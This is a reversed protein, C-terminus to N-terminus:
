ERMTSPHLCERSGRPARNSATPLHSLPINGQWIDRAAAERQARDRHLQGAQGGAVGLPVPQKCSRWCKEAFHRSNACGVREHLRSVVETCSLITARVVMGRCASAHRPPRPGSLRPGPSAYRRRPGGLPGHTNTTLVASVEDAVAQGAQRLTLWRVDSAGLWVHM